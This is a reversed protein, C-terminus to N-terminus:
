KELQFENIAKVIRKILNDYLEVQNLKNHIKISILEEVTNEILDSRYGHRKNFEKVAIKEIIEYGKEAIYKEVYKEIIKKIM